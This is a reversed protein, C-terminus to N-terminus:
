IKGIGVALRIQTYNHKYHSLDQGQGHFSLAVTGRLDGDVFLYYQQNLPKAIRGFLTFGPSYIRIIEKLASFYPDDHFYVQRTVSWSPGIGFGTRGNNTWFIRVYIPVTQESLYGIRIKSIDGSDTNGYNEFQESFREEYGIGFQFVHKTFMRTNFCFDGFYQHNFKTQLITPPDNESHHILYGYGASFQFQAPLSNLVLYFLLFVSYFRKMM